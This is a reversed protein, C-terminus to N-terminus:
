DPNAENEEVAERKGWDYDGDALQRHFRQYIYGVGVLLAGTVGFAVIRWLPEDIDVLFMRGLPFALCLLGLMRYGRLRFCFGVVLLVVSGLAWASTLFSSMAEDRSLGVLLSFVAASGWLLSAVKPTALNKHFGSRALSAGHYVLVGFVLTTVLGPSAFDGRNVLFVSIACAAAVMWILPTVLLKRFALQVMVSWVLLAMVFGIGTFLQSLACVSILTVSVSRVWPWGQGCRVGRKEQFDDLIWFATALLLSLSFSLVDPSFYWWVFSSLAALFFTCNAIRGLDRILVRGEIARGILALGMLWCPTWVESGLAVIHGGIVMVSLLMLFFSSVRVITRNFYRSTLWAGAWALGFWLFLKYSPATEVDILLGSLLLIITSAVWSRERALFAGVGGLLVCGALLHLVPGGETFKAESSFWCWAIAIVTLLLEGFFASEQGKRWRSWWYVLGAALLLYAYGYFIDATIELELFLYRGGMFVVGLSIVEFLPWRKRRGLHLLGAGQALLAFSRAQGGAQEIVLLSLLIMAKVVLMQRVGAAWKSDERWILAAGCFITFFVAYYIWWELGTARTVVGAALLGVGGAIPVFRQM